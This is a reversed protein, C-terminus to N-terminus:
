KGGKGQDLLERVRDREAQPTAAIKDILALVANGDIPTVGIGLKDAEKLLEPDKCADMFAKQLAAARDAPLGPPAVFPRSLVYPLETLEILAADGRVRVAEIVERAAQEVKPDFLSSVASLEELRRAYQPDNVRLINM